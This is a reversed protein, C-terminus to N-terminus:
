ITKTYKTFKFKLGEYENEESECVCEWGPIEDLNPFYKDAPSVADVKTVYATDCYPLM